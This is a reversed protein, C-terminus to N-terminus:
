FLQLKLDLNIWLYRRQGCCIPHNRQPYYAKRCRRRPNWFRVWGGNGNYDGCPGSLRPRPRQHLTQRRNVSFHSFLYTYVSIALKGCNLIIDSCIISWEVKEPDIKDYLQLTLLVRSKILDLSLPPGHSYQRVGPLTQFWVKIYIIHLYRLVLSSTTLRACKWCESKLTASPLNLSPRRTHERYRFLSGISYM